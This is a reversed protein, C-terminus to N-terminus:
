GGGQHDTPKGDPNRSMSGVWEAGDYCIPFYVRSKTWVTFPCGETGGYGSDFNKAMEEETMTNAEVDAWLGPRRPKSEKFVMLVNGDKRVRHRELGAREAAAVVTRKEIRSGGYGAAELMTTM